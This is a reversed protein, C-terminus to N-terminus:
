RMLRLKFLKKPTSIVEALVQEEPVTPGPSPPPKIIPEEEMSQEIKQMDPAFKQADVCSEVATTIPPPPSSARSSAISSRSWSRRENKPEYVRDPTTQKRHRSLSRGRSSSRRRSKDEPSRSRSRFDSYSRSRSRSGSPRQRSYSRRPIQETVSLRRGRSQLVGSRTRRQSRSSSISRSRLTTRTPIRPRIPLRSRSSSRRQSRDRSSSRSQTRSDRSSSRTSSSRGNRGDNVVSVSRKRVQSSSSDRDYSPRYSNYGSRGNAEAAFSQSPRYHRDDDRLLRDNRISREEVIDRGSRDPLKDIAPIALNYKVFPAARDDHNRKWTESPEFMRTAALIPERRFSSSGEWHPESHPGWGGSRDRPDVDAERSREYRDPSSSLSDYISVRDPWYNPRYVNPYNSHFVPTDNGYLRHPSPSRRRSLPREYSLPGSGPPRRSTPYSLPASSSPGADYMGSAM